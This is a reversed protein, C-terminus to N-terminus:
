WKIGVCFTFYKVGDVFGALRVPQHQKPYVVIPYTKNTQDLMLHRRQGHVDVTLHFANEGVEMEITFKDIFNKGNFDDKHVFGVVCDGLRSPDVSPIVVLKWMFDEGTHVSVIGNNGQIRFHYNPDRGDDDIGLGPTGTWPRVEGATKDLRMWLDFM